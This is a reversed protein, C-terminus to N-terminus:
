KGSHIENGAPRPQPLFWRTEKVLSIEFGPVLRRPQTHSWLLMFESPVVRWGHSHVVGFIVEKEM